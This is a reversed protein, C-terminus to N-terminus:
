PGQWPMRGPCHGRRQSSRRRLLPDPQQASIPVRCPDLLMITMTGNLDVVFLEGQEDEGFSSINMTTDLLARRAAM